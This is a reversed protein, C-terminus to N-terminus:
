VGFLQEGAHLRNGNAFERGTVRKKAPAQLELLDLVTGEGCQVRITQGSAGLFAGPMNEHGSQNEPLSRWVIVREGRMDAYAGPWPNMARVQNHISLATNRWSIRASEKSIRPAWSVLHEDQIVPTIAHEQIGALTEILLKAGAQSLVSTLEGATITLPIPVEKQLLIPGADLKEQMLMTTIGTIRDGNLISWAIPAAGRYKPLLSGHINVTAIRAAELLWGPLIQGYAAVVIFDPDLSEVIPRNEESKIKEPQFVPINQSQALIKVPSAQFKQGRGSPRDPQTFVGCIEYSYDLLAQIPPVAFEPTGIFVVRMNEVM